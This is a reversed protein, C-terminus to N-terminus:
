VESNRLTGMLFLEGAIFFDKKMAPSMDSERM